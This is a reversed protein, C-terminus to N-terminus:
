LYSPYISRVEAPDDGTARGDHAAGVKKKAPKRHRGLSQRTLPPAGPTAAVDAMRITAYDVRSADALGASAGARGTLQGATAGPACARGNSAQQVDAVNGAVRSTAEGASSCADLGAPGARRARVVARRQLKRPRLASERRIRLELFHGWRRSRTDAVAPLQLRRAVSAAARDSRREVVRRAPDSRAPQRSPSARAGRSKRWSRVSAQPGEPTRRRASANREVPSARPAWRRAGTSDRSTRELAGGRRARWSRGAWRARREGGERARGRGRRPAVRSRPLARVHRPSTAGSSTRGRRAAGLTGALADPEVRAAGVREAAREPGGEVAAVRERERQSHAPTLATM